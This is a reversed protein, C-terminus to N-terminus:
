LKSDNVFQTGCTVLHPGLVLCPNLICEIGGLFQTGINKQWIKLAPENDFAFGMAALGAGYVLLQWVREQCIPLSSQRHQENEACSEILMKPLNFSEAFSCM